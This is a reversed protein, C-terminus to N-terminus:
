AKFKHMRALFFGIIRVFILLWKHIRAFFRYNKCINLAMVLLLTGIGAQFVVSSKSNDRWNGTKFVVGRGKRFKQSSDLKQWQCNEEKSNRHPEGALGGHSHYKRSSKHAQFFHHDTIFYSPFFLVILLIMNLNHAHKVESWRSINWVQRHGQLSCHLLFM